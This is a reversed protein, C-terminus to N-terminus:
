WCWFMIYWSCKRLNLADGSYHLLQEWTQALIELKSILTEFSMKGDDTIGLATDDVFADALRQHSITGDPSPFSM